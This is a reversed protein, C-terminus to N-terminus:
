RRFIGDMQLLEGTGPDSFGPEVAVLRFGKSKMHACMEHFLMEGEYLPVLSLEMQIVAIRDLSAEAGKLVRSEFGQTDMKLYVRDGAQCLDPFLADLTRVQITERGVYRSEPASALHAPLMELFSSSYSNGAVNIELSTEADGLALHFVEWAADGEANAQLTRFAAEQPEFSLIRGTYGVERRLQRAYQGSNAGVDLLLNIGADDLIKRRRALPHGTQSGRAYVYGQKLLFNRLVRKLSVPPGKRAPVLATPPGGTSM